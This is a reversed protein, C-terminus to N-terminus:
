IASLDANVSALIENIDGIKEDVYDTTAINEPLEINEFNPKDKLDNYSGTKAVLSLESKNAKNSYINTIDAKVDNVQSQVGNLDTKNAKNGIAQNLIELTDDNDEIAKAIEGLTDLTSPASNILQSIKDNVYSEKAFKEDNTFDSLKTPKDTLDNYSGTKAVDKISNEFDTVKLLSQEAERKAVEANANANTATANAQEATNNANNSTIVAQTSKELANESNLRATNSTSLATDSNSKADNSTSIATQSNEFADESYAYAESVTELLANYNASGDEVFEAGEIEDTTSASQVIFSITQNTIRKLTSTVGVTLSEYIQISALIIGSKSLVNKPIYCSYVNSGGETKTLAINKTLLHSGSLFMVYMTQGSTLEAEVSFVDVMVSHQYVVQGELVTFTRDKNNYKVKIEYDM